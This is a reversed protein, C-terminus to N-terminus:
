ATTRALKRLRLEIRRRFAAIAEDRKEDYAPRVFPKPGHGPHLKRKRRGLKGQAKFRRGKVSHPDVGFELFHGYWSNVIVIAIWGDGDPDRRTRIGISRQLDGPRRDKYKEGRYPYRAVPALERARKRIVAAGARLASRLIKTSTIGDLQRLKSLVETDEVRLRFGGVSAPPRNGPLREFAGM